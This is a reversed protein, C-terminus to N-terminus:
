TYWGSSSSALWKPALICLNAVSFLLPSISLAGYWRFGLRQFVNLMTLLAVFTRLPRNRLAKYCIPPHPLTVSVIIVLGLSWGSYLNLFRSRGTIVWAHFSLVILSIIFASARLALKVAWRRDSAALQTRSLMDYFISHQSGLLWSSQRHQYWQNMALTFSLFSSLSSNMWGEDRRSEDQGARRLIAACHQKANSAAISSESAHIDAASILSEKKGPNKFMHALPNLQNSILLEHMTLAELHSCVCDWRFMM